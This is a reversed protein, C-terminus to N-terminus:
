GMTEQFADGVSELFDAGSSFTCEVATRPFAVGLAEVHRSASLSACHPLRLSICRPLRLPLSPSLRHPLRHLVCRSLPPPPACRTLEPTDAGEAGVISYADRNCRPLTLVCRSLTLVCGPLTFMSRPPTLVCTWAPPATARWSRWTRRAAAPGRWSGRGSCRARGGARCATSGLPGTPFSKTTGAPGRGIGTESLSFRGTYSGLDGSKDGALAPRLSRWGAAAACSWQKGNVGSGASACVSRLPTAYPCPSRVQLPTNPVVMLQELLDYVAAFYDPRNVWGLYQNAYVPVEARGFESLLLPKGPLHTAADAM